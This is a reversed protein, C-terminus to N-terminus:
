PRIQLHQSSLTEERVGWEEASIQCTEFSARAAEAAVQNPRGHHYRRVSNPRNEGERKRKTSSQLM